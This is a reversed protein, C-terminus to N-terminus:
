PKIALHVMQVRDSSPGVMVDIMGPEVSFDLDDHYFGLMTPTIDFTITRTEGANFHARSFAKLEMAPRVISSTQEHLYLQVVEDGAVNSANTIDVSAQCGGSVSMSDSSLRLNAYNFNAYSLGHGFSFLPLIDDLVYKGYRSLRNYYVPLQGVTKPFTTTLKGSPNVIGLLIRAVANGGEEGPYWAELIAPARDAILQCSMPRGNVLVIVTPKGTDLISKVLENQQGVLNLDDVDHGESCLAPDDGVVVVAADAAKAVDSAQAIMQRDAVPDNLEVKNVKWFPPGLHIKCGEAYTIHVRDGCANKLGQLITTGQDTMESYGGYVLRDANPGIVALTKIKSPDLPLLHNDNKLLVMSEEAMKLALERHADNHNSSQAVIPDAYPHDFLGLQFKLRLMDGAAHDIAEVPVVGSEVSQLLTPFCTPRPLEVDVGSLLALRAADAPDAAIHHLTMLENVGGYDSVVLGRFGWQDRLMTHLLWPNAHCPIANLAHYAPMICHAGAEQIAARFPPLFYECLDRQSQDVECKNIGGMSDGYAAFHKVTAAVHRADITDGDGQLGRVIAVAYRTTLFTDEGWSEEIRGWRPERCVDIMPSLVQGIGRSRAEQAVAAYVDHALGPDWSCSMCICQPFITAERALLGHLAEESLLLPIGLRSHEVFVKQVANYYEASARGGMESSRIMGQTQGIGHPFRTAAAADVAVAASTPFHRRVDGAFLQHLKEELTMRSLLDHVRAEIPAHPDKYVEAGNAPVILAAALFLVIVSIRIFHHM